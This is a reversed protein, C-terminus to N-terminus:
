PGAEEAVGPEPAPSLVDAVNEAARAWAERRADVEALLDEAALIAHWPAGIHQRSLVRKAEPLLRRLRETAASDGIMVSLRVVAAEAM